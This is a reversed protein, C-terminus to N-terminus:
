KLFDPIDLDDDGFASDYGADAVVPVPISGTAKPTADSEEGVRAAEEASTDPLAPAM